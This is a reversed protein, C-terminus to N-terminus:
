YNSYKGNTDQDGEELLFLPLVFFIYPLFVITDLTDIIMFFTIVIFVSAKKKNTFFRYNMVKQITLALFLVGLVGFQGMLDFAFSHGGVVKGGMIPNNIFSQLSEMYLTYRKLDTLSGGDSVSILQSFRNSIYYLDMRDALSVVMKMLPERLLLVLGALMVVAYIRLRNESKQYLYLILLVVSLLIATTYSAFLLTIYSLVITVAVIGKRFADKFRDKYILLGFILFTLGFVFGYGGVGQDYYQSFQEDSAAGALLRAANSDVVLVRLSLVSSVFVILVFLKRYKILSYENLSKYLIDFFYPWIIFPLYRGVSSIIPIGKKIGLLTLAAIALCYIGESTTILICSPDKSIQLFLVLAFVIFTIYFSYYQRFITSTQFIALCIILLSSIKDKSIRGNM